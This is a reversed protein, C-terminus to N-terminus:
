LVQCFDDDSFPGSDPRKNKPRLRLRSAWFVPASPRRSQSLLLRYLVLPKLPVQLLSRYTVCLLHPVPSPVKQLTIAKTRHLRTRKTGLIRQSNLRVRVPKLFGHPLCFGVECKQWRQSPAPSLRFKRVKDRSGRRKGQFLQALSGTGVTTKEKM